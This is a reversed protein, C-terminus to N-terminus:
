CLGCKACGDLMQRDPLVAVPDVGGTAGVIQAFVCVLGHVVSLRRTLILALSVAPNVQAGSIPGFVCVVWAFVAGVVASVPVAPKDGPQYIVIVFLILGLGLMEALFMRAMYAMHQLNCSPFKNMSPKPFNECVLNSAM